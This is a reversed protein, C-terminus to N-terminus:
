KSKKKTGRDYKKELANIRKLMEKREKVLEKREENHWEIRQKLDKVDWQLQRFETLEDKTMEAM